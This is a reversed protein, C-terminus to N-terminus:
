GRQAPRDDIWEGDFVDGNNYIMRGFGNKKDDRWYGVYVSGDKWIEKGRGNKM